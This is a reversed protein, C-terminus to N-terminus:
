SKNISTPNRLQRAQNRTIFTLLPLAAGPIVTNKPKIMKITAASPTSSKPPPPQCRCAISELECPASPTLSPSRFRSPKSSMTVPQSSPPNIRTQKFGPISDISCGHGATVIPLTDDGSSATKTSRSLSPVSSTTLLQSPLVLDIKTWQPAWLANAGVPRIPTPSPRWGKRAPAVTM